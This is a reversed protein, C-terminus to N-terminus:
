SAGVTQAPLSYTEIVSASDGSENAESAPPSEVPQESNSPTPPVIYDQKNGNKLIPVHLHSTVGYPTAAYVAVFEKCDLQVTAVCTPINVQVVQRSIMHVHDSPIEVGGAIIRTEHVSFNDGVLFISTGAPQSVTEGAECARTGSGESAPATDCPSDGPAQVKCNKSCCFCGGDKDLIVGPAGYFGILEPALDTVGNSFMEFGGLTNEYPVQARMSQMPLQRELQEVRNLLRDTEGDRYLHACQVCHLSCEEMKKISRSLQVSKHTSIETSRPNDLRFWNTTVNFDCYPVFSPMLVIAVCERMGPEIEAERKNADAFRGFVSEGFAAFTSRNKHIQVRPRFEWGFTDSGYSFGAIKRNLAITEIDEQYQRVFQNAQRININGGALALAVAISLERRLTSAAQVNQDETVPDVHFVHIPWRCKVYQQFQQTALYFEEHFPAGENAPFPLYYAFEDTPSCGCDGKATAIAQVDYNLQDNLLAMEVLVPWALYRMISSPTETRTAALDTNLFTEDFQRKLVKLDNLRSASVISALGTGPGNSEIMERVFEINTPEILMRYAMDLNNELFHRVDALHIRPADRRENWSVMQGRYSTKFSRAIEILNHRSIVKELLVQPIPMSSRRRRSVPNVIARGSKLYDEALGNVLLLAQSCISVKSLEMQTSELDAFDQELLSQNTNTTPESKRLEAMMLNFGSEKAFNTPQEPGTKERFEHILNAAWYTLSRFAEDDGKDYQEKAATAHFQILTTFIRNQAERNKNIRENELDQDVCQDASAITQLITEEQIELARVASVGFERLRKANEIVTGRKFIWDLVETISYTAPDRKQLPEIVDRIAKADTQFKDQFLQAHYSYELNDDEALKLIPLALQDVVDNIVLSRFTDPLLSDGTFPKATITVKAGYGRRTERGPNVSVPIRVLNLAYGPADSTDDGSNIRRLQHLHNIFRARQNLEETIELNTSATLDNRTGLKPVTGM